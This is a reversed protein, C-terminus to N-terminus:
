VMCGEVMAAATTNRGGHCGEVDSDFHRFPRAGGTIVALTLTGKGKEENILFFVAVYVRAALCISHTNWHENSTM